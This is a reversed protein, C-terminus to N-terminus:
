GGQKESLEKSIIQIGMVLAVGLAFGIAAAVPLARELMDPLVEVSM